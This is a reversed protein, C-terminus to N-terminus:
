EKWVFNEKGAGIEFFYKVIGLDIKTCVGFGPTIHVTNGDLMFEFKQQNMATPALLAMEIGDKFWQPSDDSNFDIEPNNNLWDSNYESTLVVDNYLKSNHPKGEDEGYGLAIVCVLKENDKVEIADSIKKYTLYVCCTNLGLSQAELMLRAGYYGCKEDLDNTKPGILAFYNKVNKFKGYHAMFGDFAKPEECVIQIHMNGEKNCEDVIENLKNLAEPDIPKDLYSRVSHRQRIIDKTIM